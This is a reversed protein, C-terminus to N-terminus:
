SSTSVKLPTQSGLKLSQAGLDKRASLLVWTKRRLLFSPLYLM